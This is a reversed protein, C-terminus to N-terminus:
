VSVTTLGLTELERRATEDGQEALERLRQHLSVLAVLYQAHTLGRGGASARFLSATEAPVRRMLIDEPGAGDERSPPEVRRRFFVVDDEGPPGFPPGPFHPPFAHPEDV